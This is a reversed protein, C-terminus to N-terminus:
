ACINVKFSATEATRPMKAIPSCSFRRQSQFVCPAHQLRAPLRARITLPALRLIANTTLRMGPASARLVADGHLHGRDICGANFVRSAVRCSAVHTVTCIRACVSAGLRNFVVRSCGKDNEAGGVM